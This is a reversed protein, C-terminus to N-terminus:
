HRYYGSYFIMHIIAAIRLAGELTLVVLAGRLGTRKRLVYGAVTFLIMAYAFVRAQPVFLLYLPYVVILTLCLFWVIAVLRSPGPQVRPDLGARFVKVGIYRECIVLNAIEVAVIAAGLTEHLRM